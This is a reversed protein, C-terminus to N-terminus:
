IKNGMKELSKEHYLVNEDTEHVNAKGTSAQKSFEIALFERGRGGGAGGAGGRRSRRIRIESFLDVFRTEVNYMNDEFARM